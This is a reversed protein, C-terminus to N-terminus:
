VLKGSRLRHQLGPTDRADGAVAGARSSHAGDRVRLRESRACDGWAHTPDVPLGAAVLAAVLRGEDRADDWTWRVVRWGLARLRDERLKEDIVVQEASRGGRMASDLYKVAGDAEGIVRFEPWAFDAFGIMGRGDSFARQLEPKPLGARYMAVRSVSELPSDARGDALSVAEFSRRHGRQPQARLWARLLAERDASEGGSTYRGSLVADAVAVAGPLSGSAAIDIVTREPSTCRLGAVEVVDEPPIRLSHTRVGKTSRRGASPDVAVHIADGESVIPLGHLAVASWHSFLPVISRTRAHARLRAVERERASLADWACRDVYAGRAIRM